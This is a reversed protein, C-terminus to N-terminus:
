NEQLLKKLKKNEEKLETNENYYVSVTKKLEDMKADMKSTIEDTKIKMQNITEKLEKIEEKDVNPEWDSLSDDASEM